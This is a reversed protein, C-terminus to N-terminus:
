GAYNREQCFVGAIRLEEALLDLKPFLFLQTPYNLVIANNRAKPQRPFLPQALPTSNFVPGIGIIGEM